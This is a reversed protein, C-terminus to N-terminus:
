RWRHWAWIEAAFPIFALTYKLKFTWKSTKHAFMIMAFLGGPWGGIAGLAVLSLESVRRNSGCASWKDFGFALFTLASFASFWVAAFTNIISLHLSLKGYGLSIPM